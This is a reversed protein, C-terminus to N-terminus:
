SARNDRICTSDLTVPVMTACDSKWCWESSLTSYNSVCLQMFLAVLFLISIRASKNKNNNNNHKVRCHDSINVSNTFFDKIHMFHMFYNVQAYVLYTWRLMSLFYNMQTYEIILEGSCTCSITQTLMYLLYNMQACTFLIEGSRLCSTAQRFM